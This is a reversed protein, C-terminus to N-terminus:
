FLVLTPQTCFCLVSTGRWTDGSWLTSWLRRCSGTNPPALRRGKQALWIDYSQINFLLFLITPNLNIIWYVRGHVREYILCCNCKRNAIYCVRVSLSSLFIFFLSYQDHGLEPDPARIWSTNATGKWVPFPQLSASWINWGVPCVRVLHSLRGKSPLTLCHM